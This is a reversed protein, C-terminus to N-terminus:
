LSEHNKVAQKMEERLKNEVQPITKGLLNIRRNVFVSYFVPNSIILYKLQPTVQWGDRMRGTRVPTAERIRNLAWDSTDDIAKTIM